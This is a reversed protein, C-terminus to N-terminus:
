SGTPAHRANTGPHPLAAASHARGRTSHKGGDNRWVARLPGSFGRRRRPPELISRDRKYGVAESKSGSTAASLYLKKIAVATGLRGHSRSESAARGPDSPTTPCRGMELLAGSRSRGRTGSRHASGVPSGSRRLVGDPVAKPVVPERTGRHRDPPKTCSPEM